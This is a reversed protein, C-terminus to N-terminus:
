LRKKILYQENKAFNFKDNDSKTSKMVIIEDQQLNIVENASNM